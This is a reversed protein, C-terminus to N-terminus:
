ETPLGAARRAWLLAQKLAEECAELARQDGAGAIDERVIGLSEEIADVLEPM